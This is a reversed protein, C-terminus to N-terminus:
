LHTQSGSHIEWSLYIVEAGGSSRGRASVVEWVGGDSLVCGQSSLHDQAKSVRAARSSFVCEYQWFSATLPRVNSRKTM